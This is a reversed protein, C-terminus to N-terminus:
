EMTLTQSNCVIYIRIKCVYLYPPPVRSPGRDENKGGRSSIEEEQGSDDAVEEEDADDEEDAEEEELGNRDRREEELVDTLGGLGRAARAWLTFLRALFATEADAVAPELAAGDSTLWFWCDAREDFGVFGHRPLCSSLEAPTQGGSSSHHRIIRTLNSKGESSLMVLAPFVAESWDSCQLNSISLSSSHRPIFALLRSVLSPYPEQKPKVIIM